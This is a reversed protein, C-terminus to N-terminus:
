DSTIGNKDIYRSIDKLYKDSKNHLITYTYKNEYITADDPFNDKITDLETEVYNSILKQYYEKKSNLPNKFNVKFVANITKRHEKLESNLLQFERESRNDRHLGNTISVLNSFVSGKM